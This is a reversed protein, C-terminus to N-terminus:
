WQQFGRRYAAIKAFYGLLASLGFALYIVNAIWFHDLEAMSMALAAVAGAVVFFQGIYEGRRNIERDREDQRGIDKPASIAVLIYAVIAAVVYAGIAWLLTAVYPVETLPINEARRLITALYAVYVGTTVVAMLWAIKERFAM